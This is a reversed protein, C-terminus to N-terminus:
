EWRISKDSCSFPERDITMSCTRREAQATTLQEKAKRADVERRSIKGGAGIESQGVSLIM